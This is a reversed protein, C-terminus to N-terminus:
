RIEYGVVTGDNKETSPNIIVTPCEPRTQVYDLYDKM